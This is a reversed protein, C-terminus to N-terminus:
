LLHLEKEEFNAFKFFNEFQEKNKHLKDMMKTEIAM